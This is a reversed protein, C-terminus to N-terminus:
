RISNPSNKHGKKTKIPHQSKMRQIFISEFGVFHTCKSLFGRIFCSLILADIVIFFLFLLCWVYLHNRSKEHKEIHKREGFLIITEDNGHVARKLKM